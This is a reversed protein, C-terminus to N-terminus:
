QRSGPGSLSRDSKLSGNVVPHTSPPPGAILLFRIEKQNYKEIEEYDETLILGKKLKFEEM